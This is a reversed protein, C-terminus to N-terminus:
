RPYDRKTNGDLSRNTNVSTSSMTKNLINSTGHRPDRKRLHMEPQTDNYGINKSKVSSTSQAEDVEDTLKDISAETINVSARRCIMDRTKNDTISGQSPFKKNDNVCLRSLDEYKMQEKQLRNLRRKQLNPHPSGMVKEYAMYYIKWKVDFLIFIM